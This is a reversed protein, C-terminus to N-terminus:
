SAVKSTKKFFGADTVVLLMVAIILAVSNVLTSTIPLVIIGGAVLYVVRRAWPIIKKLFGIYGLCSVMMGSLSFFASSVVEFTTGELILGPLYIFLLPTIYMPIAIRVAEYGTTWLKSGALPAAAFCAVAVPPTINSVVAFYFVFLHAAMPLVGGTVLSPVVLVAVLAYAAVSPMGMGLIISTIAAMILLPFINGQALRTLALGVNFAIGSANIAGVVLGAASLIIGINVCLGGSELLVDYVKKLYDKRGDRIFSYCFLSLFGSIVACFAPPLGLSFMGGLLLALGPVIVLFSKITPTKAPLQGIDLGKMGMKGADLDLLWFLVIYFLLAPIIAAIAVESYPVGLTEAIIFAAIGMVPPMIQGGSSAV